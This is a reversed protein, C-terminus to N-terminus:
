ALNVLADPAVAVGAVREAVGRDPPQVRAPQAPVVALHLHHELVRVAPEVRQVGTSYVTIRGQWFKRPM